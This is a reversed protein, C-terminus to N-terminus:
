TTSYCRQRSSGSQWGTTHSFGPRRQRINMHPFCGEGPDVVCLLTRHLRCHGPHSPPTTTHGTVFSSLSCTRVSQLYLLVRPPLRGAALADAKIAAAANIIRDEACCAPTPQLPNTLNPTNPGQIKPMIILPFRALLALEAAPVTARGTAPDLTSAVTAFYFTPLTTWNPTPSYGWDAGGGGTGGGGVRAAVTGGAASAFLIGACVLAWAPPSIMPVSWSQFHLM